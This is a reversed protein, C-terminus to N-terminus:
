EEGSKLKKNFNEKFKQRLRKAEIAIKKHTEENYGVSYWEKFRDEGHIAIISHELADYEQDTLISKGSSYYAKKAKYLDEMLNFFSYDLDSM